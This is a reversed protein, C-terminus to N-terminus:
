DRRASRVSKVTDRTLPELLAPWLKYLGWLVRAYGPYVVLGQNRVVGRLMARVAPGTPLIPPRIFRRVNDVDVRVCASAEYIGSEIYSPCLATVRVGLDRGEARLSQSLGVIAHKATAYPAMTPAPLLGALSATNVLHGWGQEAMLPYAATVGHLVGNLTVDLVRRWHEPELDRAEGCVSVGANNFLYDLAGHRRVVGYIAERVDAERTVDLVEVEMGKLAALGEGNVDTAVVRAGQAAVQECIARGIGSAAGTVLVIRDTWPRDPSPARRKEVRPRGLTTTPM